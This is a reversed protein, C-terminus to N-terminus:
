KNLYMEDCIQIISKKEINKTNNIQINEVCNKELRDQLVATGSSVLLDLSLSGFWISRYGECFQRGAILMCHQQIQKNM